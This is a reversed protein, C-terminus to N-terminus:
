PIGDRSTARRGLRLTEGVARSTNAQIQRRVTGREHYEQVLNEGSLNWLRLRLTRFGCRDLKGTVPGNRKIWLPAAGIRGDHEMRQRVPSPMFIGANTIIGARSDVSLRKVRRGAAWYIRGDRNVKAVQAIDRM